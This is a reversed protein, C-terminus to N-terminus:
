LGRKRSFIVALGLVFALFFNFHVLKFSAATFTTALLSLFIMKIKYGSASALGRVLISSLVLIGLAGTTALYYFISNHIYNKVGPRGAEIPFDAGLGGGFVPNEQFIAIAEKIEFLRVSDGAGGISEFRTLVYAVLASERLEIVLFPALAILALSAILKVFRPVQFFLFVLVNFFIIIIQAKYGTLIVLWSFWLFLGVRLTIPYCGFYLVLLAGLFPYPISFNQDAGTIRGSNLMIGYLNIDGSIVVVVTWLLASVLFIDLLFCVRESDFYRVLFLTYFLVSLPLASRVWSFYSVEGFIPFLFNSGLLLLLFGFQLDILWVAGTRVCSGAWLLLSLVFCIAFFVSAPSTLEPIWPIFVMSLATVFYLLEHKKRPLLRDALAWRM